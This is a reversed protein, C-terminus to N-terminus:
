DIKTVIKDVVKIKDHKTEVKEIKGDLIHIIKDGYKILDLGHTVMIITKGQLHLQKLFNMVYTGTKSDLNGTPEDALIIDPDVALARAIAVRQQQGGSLEKPLHYMREQLDVIKLNREAIERAKSVPVNQFELPLMVNQLANLTQLLNFSQFVFGITKGRLTALNSESLKSINQGNLFISGESPVDLCGLMNLLTSKGSGSPGVIIIFEGKNITLNIGDLACVKVDGMKYIKRVNNLEIIKQTEM